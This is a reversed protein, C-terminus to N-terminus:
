PTPPRGPPRVAPGGRTDGGPTAEGSRVARTRGTVPDTVVAERRATGVEQNYTTAYPGAPIAPIAPTTATAPVAARGPDFLAAYNKMEERTRAGAGQGISSHYEGTAPDTYGGELSMAIRSGRQMVEEAYAQQEAPALTAIEGLEDATATGNLIHAARNVEESMTTWTDASQSAMQWSGQREDVEQMLGLGNSRLEGNAENWAYQKWQRDTNQKQFAAGIWVGAFQDGSMNFGSGRENMRGFNARVYDMQEQTTAKQMEYATAAQLASDNGDWRAHGQDVDSESVWRGGLTRFSLSNDANRKWHTGGAADHAFAWAKNVTLGRVEDDVGSNITDEVSKIADARYAARGAYMDYGGVRNQLQKLGWRSIGRRKGAASGLRQYARERNALSLGQYDKAAQQKRSELMKNARGVGNTLVGYIGAVAGGAFKFAFPVLILPLFQLVFAIIGALGNGIAGQAGGSAPNAKLITITLIDSIAFIVIIIPYVLLTKFLLDWWQKFYKETNPLCYLAFAVPSIIILFLLLGRRLILMVFVGLISLFVPVIVTLGIFIAVKSLGAAGGFLLTGLLGVTAGTGLIGGLVGLGAGFIGQVDSPSFSLHNSVKLPALMLDGIGIGIINTIDVAAAVIYISLNILVAAILIRPAMKKATYADIVGGGIAQGFVLVLMAIILVINGYIRFNSWIQFTGDDGNPNTSVPPAHLFPQVIQTFLWDSLDSVGNFVPCLLWSLNTISNAECTVNPDHCLVGQGNCQPAGGPVGGPPVGPTVPAAASGGIKMNVAKDMYCNNAAHTEAPAPPKPSGKDGKYDTLFYQVADGTGVNHIVIVDSCNDGNDLFVNPYVTSQSYGPEGGDAHKITTESTFIFEINYNGSDKLAVNFPDPKNVCQAGGNALPAGSEDMDLTGNDIGPKGAPGDLHINGPCAYGKIAYNYITDGINQDFFTYTQNGVHGEITARNIWNFTASKIEPESAAFAKAPRLVTAFFSFLFVLLLSTIVTRKRKLMVTMFIACGLFALVSM